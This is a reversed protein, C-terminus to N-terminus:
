ADDQSSNTREPSVAIQRNSEPPWTDIQRNSETSRMDIQRNPEPPWMDIIQSFSKSRNLRLGNGHNLENKMMQQLVYKVNPFLANCKLAKQIYDSIIQDRPTTNDDRRFISVNEIAGRAIMVSSFGTISRIQQIDQRTYVDGNAILPISFSSANLQSLEDWRAAVKSPHDQVRRDLMSLLPMSVPPSLKAFSTM